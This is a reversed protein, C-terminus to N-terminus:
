YGERVYSGDGFLVYALRRTNGDSDRFIAGNTFFHYYDLGDEFGREMDVAFGIQGRLDANNCWIAGFGKKPMTLGPPVDVQCSFEPMSENWITRDDVHRSWWGQSGGVTVLYFRLDQSWFMHGNQFPQEAWFGGNPWPQIPCGLQAQYRRWLALFPGQPETTCVAPTSTSPPPIPTATPAPPIPTATPSPPPIPTATPLVSTSTPPPQAISANLKAEADRTALIALIRAEDAAATATLDPSPSPTATATTTPLATTTETQTPTTTDPAVAAAAAEKPEVNVPQDIMPPMNQAAAPTSVSAGSDVAASSGGPRLLWFLSGAIWVLILPIALALCGNRPNRRLKAWTTPARGAGGLREPSFAGSTTGVGAPLEGDFLASYMQAASQYRDESRMAMAREIAEALRPSINRNIRRLPPLPKGVAMGTASPPTKGSLLAYLTAGLSYIDSRADTGGEYQEIPAYGPTLARASLATAEGATAKAIGFDLLMYRGDPMQKINAPKIDRHIVPQPVGTEPHRWNHLYNLARLLQRACALVEQEPMPRGREILREQLNQGQIYDMVLYQRTDSARFYDSVRPLNPHHLRALLLAEHQFQKGTLGDSVTNVKLAVLRGPLTTDEALFVQGM